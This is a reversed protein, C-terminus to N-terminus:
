GHLRTDQNILINPQLGPGIAITGSNVIEGPTHGGGGTAGVNNTLLAGGHNDDALSFFVNGPDTIM